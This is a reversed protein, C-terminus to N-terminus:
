PKLDLSDLCLIPFSPSASLHGFRDLIMFFAWPLASLPVRRPFGQELRQGYQWPLPKGLGAEALNPCTSTWTGWSGKVSLNFIINQKLIQLLIMSAPLSMRVGM